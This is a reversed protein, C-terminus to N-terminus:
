YNLKLHVLPCNHFKNKYFNIIIKSKNNPKKNQNKWNM